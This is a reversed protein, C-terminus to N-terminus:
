CIGQFNITALHNMEKEFPGRKLPFENIKLSPASKQLARVLNGQVMLPHVLTALLQVM